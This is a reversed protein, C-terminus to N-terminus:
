TGRGIGKGKPNGKPKGMPPNGSLAWALARLM